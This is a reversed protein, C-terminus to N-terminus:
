EREWGGGEFTSTNMLRIKKKKAKRKESPFKWWSLSPLISERQVFVAHLFFLSRGMTSSIDYPSPSPASPVNWLSIAGEFRVLSAPMSYDSSFLPANDAKLFNFIQLSQHLPRIEGGGGGVRGGGGGGGGGGGAGGAGVGREVLPRKRMRM